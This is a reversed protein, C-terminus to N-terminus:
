KVVAGDGISPLFGVGGGSNGDDDDGDDGVINDKYDSWSSRYSSACGAPVYIKLNSSCDYFVGYDITPPSKRECIVKNLKYCRLFIYPGMSVVSEPITVNTISTCESFAGWDMYTVSNPIHISTVSSCGAFSHYKVETISDPLEISKLKSCRGFAWQEINKLTSPFDVDLLETCMYFAYDGITTVSNGLDLTTLNACWSFAYNGVTIVSNPLVIKSIGECENFSYNGITSVNSGIIVNTLGKCSEFVGEGSEANISGITKVSNPITISSIKACRRFAANGITEVGNGIFVATLGSCNYFANAGIETVSHPIVVETLSYKQKFAEAPIKTVPGDFEIVCRDNDYTNSVINAGFDTTNNPTIITETSSMYWIENNPIRSPYHINGHFGDDSGNDGLQSIIVEFYCQDYTVLIKAERASSSTNAEVVYSIKSSSVTPKVWSASSEAQVSCGPKPNELTFTIEGNGGEPGFEVLSPSTLTLIPTTEETEFNYGVIDEAYENWGSASKYADVSDTPVYIIRNTANSYFADWKAYNRFDATPPTIPKCYVSALKKCDRFASHGITTVGEGITVCELNSCGWFALNGITTVSNPIIVSLLGKCDEFAWNGITTVSDPITVSTLSKCYYFAWDGITTVSGPITYETAGSGTAFSILVDDVILCRGNDAAFKGKFEKILHCGALACDGITTVSDPITVSTLRACCFFASDGITTVSDPITISTLGNCYAFAYDGITTVSEGITVSTLSDCDYFASRGITTVSDPITYETAGSGIAFSILVDDVILCRGNDAAFKGKFEKILLCGAFACDGITTVSDPITVSTLSTCDRFSMYGITTVSDPITVSTLNDCSSFAYNCIETVNGDFKIVGKGNEYTNSLINAEFGDTRHPEIINGDSSTYWIENKAPKTPDYVEFEVEITTMPQIINREVVVKKSTSQEFTGKNIDTAVITIGKGFEMPPLVVWFETPNDADASLEVGQGCDLTISETADDALVVEPVGGYTATINVNGVIKEGDNGKVVISKVTGEGYLKIKLYGGVNKFIIDGDNIGSTASVMTNVNQAFSNTAYTQIAPLSCSIIGSTSITASKDYPYLAYIRDLKESSGLSSEVSVFTGSNDGTKGNFQYKVNKTDGVFASILDGEHWRLFKNNEVYTRTDADEFGATLTPLESLALRSNGEDEFMENCGVFVLAAVALLLFRKM